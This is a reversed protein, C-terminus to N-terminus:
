FTGDGHVKLHQVSDDSRVDPNAKVENLCLQFFHTDKLMPLEWEVFSQFDKASVVGDQDIDWVRFASKIKNENLVGSNQIYGATFQSYTLCKKDSFDLKAFTDKM